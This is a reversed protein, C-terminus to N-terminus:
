KKVILCGIGSLRGLKSSTETLSETELELSSLSSFDLRYESDIASASKTTQFSATWISVLLASYFNVFPILYNRKKNYLLTGM